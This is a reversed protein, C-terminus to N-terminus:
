DEWHMKGTRHFEEVKNQMTEPHRGIYPLVQERQKPNDIGAVWLGKPGHRPQNLDGLFFPHLNVFEDVNTENVAPNDSLMYNRLKRRIKWEEICMGYHFIKIENDNCWYIKDEYKKGYKKAFVEGNISVSFAFKDYCLGPLNKLMREQTDDWHPGVIVHNFDRWFQISGYRFHVKDTKQATQHLWQLDKTKYIEDPDVTLLWDGKALELCLNRKEKVVERYDSNEFKKSIIKMKTQPFSHLIELTNDQSDNDVVIIEDSFDYISQISEFLFDDSDWTIFIASVLKKM